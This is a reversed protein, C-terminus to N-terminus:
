PTAAKQMAKQVEPSKMDPKVAKPDKKTADVNAKARAADAATPNAM